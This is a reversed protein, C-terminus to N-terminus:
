PGIAQLNIQCGTIMAKFAAVSIQGYVEVTNSISATVSSMPGSAIYYEATGNGGGTGGSTTAGNPITFAKPGVSGASWTTAFYNAASAVVVENTSATSFSSSTITLPTTETYNYGIATALSDLPNTPDCGSFEMVTISNEPHSGVLGSSENAVAM